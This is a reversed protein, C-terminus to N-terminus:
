FTGRSQIVHIAVSPDQFPVREVSGNGLDIWVTVWLDNDADYILVGLGRAGSFTAAEDHKSIEWVSALDGAYSDIALAVRGLVM